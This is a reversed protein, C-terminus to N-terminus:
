AYVRGEGVPYFYSIKERLYNANLVATEAAARLGKGGLTVIYALAKLCLASTQGYFASVRGM